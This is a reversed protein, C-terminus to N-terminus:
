LAGTFMAALTRRDVDLYDDTHDINADGLLRQVTEISQGQAAPIGVPRGAARSLDTRGRL